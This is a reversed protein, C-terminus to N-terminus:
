LPWVEDSGYVKDGDITSATETWLFRDGTYLEPTGLKTFVKKTVITHYWVQRIESLKAANNAAQGVWVLDNSGRIGTRTVFLDGSDVGSSHRITYKEPFDGAYASAFKPRIVEKVIYTIKMGARVAMIEKDTGVFVSMVRDGDFSTIAGGQAVIIKCACRLFCKYVEAARSRSVSEVLASSGILDSYLVAGALKVANNGLSVDEPEPVVYGDRTDWQSRIVEAVYDILEEKLGM